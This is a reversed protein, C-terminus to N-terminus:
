DNRDLERLPRPLTRDRSAFERLLFPKRVVVDLLDQQAQPARSQDLRDPARPAAIQQRALRVVDTHLVDDLGGLVHGEFHVAVKMFHVILAAIRRVRAADTGHPAQELAPDILYELTDTEGVEQM